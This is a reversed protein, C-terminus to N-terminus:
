KTPSRSILELVTSGDWLERSWWLVPWYDERQSLIRTRKSQPGPWPKIEYYTHAISYWPNRLYSHPCEYLQECKASRELSNMCKLHIQVHYKIPCGLPLLVHAMGLKQGTPRLIHSM